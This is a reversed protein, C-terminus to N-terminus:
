DRRRFVRVIRAFLGGHAGDSSHAARATGGAASRIRAALQRNAADESDLALAHLIADEAEATRGLAFQASALAGLTRASIELAHARTAHALAATCDDLALCTLTLEVHAPVCGPSRELAAEFARRADAFCCRRREGIGLAYLPVWLPYALALRQARATIVGLDDPRGHLAARLVSELEISAEPNEIAFRARQAEAAFAGDKDFRDITALASLAEKPNGM